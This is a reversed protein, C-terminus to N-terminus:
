KGARATKIDAEFSCSKADSERHISIWHAALGQSGIVTPQDDFFVQVHSGWV